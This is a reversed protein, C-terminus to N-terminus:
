PHLPVKGKVEAPDVGQKLLSEAVAESTPCNITNDQLFPLLFASLHEGLVPFVLFAALLVQLAVITLALLVSTLEM